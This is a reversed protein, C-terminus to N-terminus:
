VDRLGKVAVRAKRVDQLIDARVHKPDLDFLEALGAFSTLASHHEEAVLWALERQVAVRHRSRYIIRLGDAL